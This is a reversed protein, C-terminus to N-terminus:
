YDAVMELMTRARGLPCVPHSKPRKSRGDFDHQGEVATGNAEYYEFNRM